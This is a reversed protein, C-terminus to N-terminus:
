KIKKKSALISNAEHGRDLRLLLVKFLCKKKTELMAHMLQNSARRFGSAVNTCRPYYMHAPSHFLTRVAPEWRHASQVELHDQRM